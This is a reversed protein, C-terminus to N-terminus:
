TKVNDTRNYTRIDTGHGVNATLWCSTMPWGRHGYALMTDTRALGNKHWCPSARLCALGDVHLFPFTRLAPLDMLTSCLPMLSPPRHDEAKWNKEPERGARIRICVSV